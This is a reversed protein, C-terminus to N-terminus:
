RAGAAKDRQEMTGAYVLGAADLADTLPELVARALGRKLYPIKSRGGTFFRRYPHILVRVYPGAVPAVELEVETRYLGWERFTRPETALVNGSPGPVVTWGAEELAHRLALGEAKAAPQEAGDYEYDRYLPSIAPACSAVLATLTLLLLSRRVLSTPPNPPRM